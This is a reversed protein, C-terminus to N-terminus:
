PGVCLLSLSVLEYASVVNKQVRFVVIVTFVAKCPESLKTTKRIKNPPILLYCNLLKRISSYWACGRLVANRKVKKTKLQSILAAFTINV